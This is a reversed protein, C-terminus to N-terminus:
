FQIMAKLSKQALQIMEADLCIEEKMEELSCLVNELTNKKMNMCTANDAIAVIKKEASEKSLPYIIGCETGILYTGPQAERIYNIMQSTSLAMDAARITGPTCEPHVLVQAEPYLRRAFAIREPTIRFHIPCFGDHLILPRGTKQHVFAGLYKDPIFIVEKDGPISEVIRVANSSTCCIDSMAKVAASSNVYCVVIAGPHRKRLEEVDSAAIMDAMPCGASADPMLVTKQPSLIKATEAMFRVGCFLIVAHPTEAAQRSLELSDGTVDAIDQVEPLTYNHALIVADRRKKLEHIKDQIVSM